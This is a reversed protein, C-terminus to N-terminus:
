PGTRELRHKHLISQYPADEFGTQNKRKDEIRRVIRSLLHHTQADLPTIIIIDQKPAKKPPKVTKPKINRFNDKKAPQKQKKLTKRKPKSPQARKKMENSANQEEIAQLQALLRDYQSAREISKNTVPVSLYLNLYTEVPVFAAQSDYSVDIKALATKTEADMQGNISVPHGHLWLLRKLLMTKGAINAQKYNNKINEMVVPDPQAGDLLQWYPLDLYRGVLQIISFQVLLRVADHRGQVKKVSGRLGITPGFLTFGVEQEKIGKYVTIGNSAQMKPIGFLGQYSILNFDVAIKAKNWKDGQSYDLGITKGDFLSPASNQDETEADFNRKRDVTTLGRDFETIGGALIVDPILKQDSVPYGSVQIGAFYNPWFPIYVVQGGISNLASKVMVTISRPIEGGSHYSTGTVDELSRIQIKMLRSSYIRSQTGIMSLADSFSTERIVPPESPIQLQEPKPSIATCGVLSWILLLVGSLLRKSNQDITFTHAKM